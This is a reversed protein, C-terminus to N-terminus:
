RTSWGGAILNAVGATWGTQADAGLGAGTDGDYFEWLRATRRWQADVDGVVRERVTTALGPDVTELAEVLLLNLPVWVPGRWNSNVGRGALGPIYAPDAASVSRIGAPSLFQRSDRLRELVRPLRDPPVIGAILPVLGSISM